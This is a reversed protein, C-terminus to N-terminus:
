KKKGTLVEDSKLPSTLSITAKKLTFKGSRLPIVQMRIKANEPLISTDTTSVTIKVNKELMLYPGRPAERLAVLEYDPYDEDPQHAVITGAVLYSNTSRGAQAPAKQIGGRKSIKKGSLPVFITVDSLYIRKNTMVGEGQIYAGKTVFGKDGPALIQFDVKPTLSIEYEGGQDDEITMKTLRGKKTIEKVVGTKLELNGQAFLCASATLELILMASFASLLYRYKM